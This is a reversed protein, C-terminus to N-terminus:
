DFDSAKMMNLEYIDLSRHRPKKKLSKKETKHVIEWVESDSIFLKPGLTLSVAM